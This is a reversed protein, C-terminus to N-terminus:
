IKLKKNQSAFLSQWQMSCHGALQASNQRRTKIGETYSLANQM